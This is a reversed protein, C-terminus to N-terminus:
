ILKKAQALGVRKGQFDFHAYFARLFAAGLIVTNEFTPPLDAAERGHTGVSPTTVFGSQCLTKNLIPVYVVNSYQAPTMVWLTGDALEFGVDPLNSLGSCNLPPNTMNRVTQLLKAPGTIWSTGSDFIVRCQTAGCIDTVSVGGVRISKLLVVWYDERLLPYYTLNGHFYQEDVGDLTLRSTHSVYYGGADSALYLGFSHLGMNSSITPVDQQSLRPWGLGMIGDFQVFAYGVAKDIETFTQLAQLGGLSVVDASQYGKVAGSGYDLEISTGNPMYTSSLNHNYTRHSTCFNCETHNNRSSFWVNSSGTDLLLAVIQPPSGVSVNVYYEIQHFDAVATESGAPYQSSRRLATRRRMSSLHATRGTLPVTLLSSVTCCLSLLLLRQM